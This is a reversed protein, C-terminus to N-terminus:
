TICLSISRKIVTYEKEEGGCCVIANVTEVRGTDVVPAVVSVVAVTWFDGLFRNVIQDEIQSLAHLHSSTPM